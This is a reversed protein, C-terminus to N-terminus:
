DGHRDEHESKPSESQEHEHEHQEHEASKPKPKATPDIVTPKPPNQVSPPTVIKPQDAVAAIEKLTIPRLQKRRGGITYRATADTNAQRMLRLRRAEAGAPQPWSKM